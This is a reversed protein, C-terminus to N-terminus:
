GDKTFGWYYVVAEDESFGIDELVQQHESPSM